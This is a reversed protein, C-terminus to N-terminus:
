RRPATMRAQAIEVCPVGRSVQLTIRPGSRDARPSSFAESSREVALAADSPARRDIYTFRHKLM